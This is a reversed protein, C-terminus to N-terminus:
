RTIPENKSKLRRCDFYFYKIQSGLLHKTSMIVIIIIVLKLNTPGNIAIWFLWLLTNFIEIACKRLDRYYGFALSYPDSNSRLKTTTGMTPGKSAQDNDRAITIM